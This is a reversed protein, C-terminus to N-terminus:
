EKVDLYEDISVCLAEKVQEVTSDKIQAGATAGNGGGGLPELIMQVNINGMSRASVIVRNEDQYLVFSATIGSINLLEDASQAALARTTASPLAAIAIESKYLKASKIINYKAMTEQFDSQLLQKVETTDAGIQKLYAAAEFTREGTRVNFSKTDLFIGALLAKAEIPLIDKKELVYEILETTLECASSAGVEHHPVVVERIYDAARRHHDILCVKTAADLLALSEVQDPRNTDVVVLMSRNDCLLLADDGSIFAEKYEPEARIEDLFKGVANNETDMVIHYAKGKKRCMACVGLAAGLSDMDANKHGMVFVRNSQGILEMLSNANIRSRVRSHPENEKSRGGFFDFNLRNKIVAQDGGRSLAMEISLSAFEYCEAFNAGDVGLGFSISAALGAPSTIGHVDELISFKGDIASQLYRKEFILLYRNKELRRLLGHYGDAWKTIANHIDANLLSIASETLNKTLEEYNDVLVISVVPRTRIYEDRVQYLETLDVFYMFGLRTNRSDDAIIATGYVRYRRKGLNVDYAYESKGASLWDTPFDPLLEQLIHQRFGEKYGSIEAFEDNAYVIGSDELRVVVVPLPSTAGEITNMSDTVTQLYLQLDKHRRNRAVIYSILLILTIVGECLALIYNQMLLAAVTFVLLIIYFYGTSQRLHRKLKKNM